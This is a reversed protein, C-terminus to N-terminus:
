GVLSSSALEVTLLARKRCSGAAQNQRLDVIEPILLVALACRLVKLRMVLDVM